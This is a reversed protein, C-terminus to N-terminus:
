DSAAKLKNTGTFALLFLYIWVVLVGFYMSTKCIINQSFGVTM